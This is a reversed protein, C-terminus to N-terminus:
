REAGLLSRAYYDRLSVVYACKSSLWKLQRHVGSCVRVRHGSSRPRATVTWIIRFAPRDVNLFLSGGGAEAPFWVSRVTNQTQFHHSLRARARGCRDERRRWAHRWGDNEWGDHQRKGMMGLEVAARKGSKPPSPSRTGSLQGLHGEGFRTRSMTPKTISPSPAMTGCFFLDSRRGTSPAHDGSIMGAPM